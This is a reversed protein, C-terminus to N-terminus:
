VSGAILQDVPAFDDTLITAGDVYDDLAPGTLLEGVERDPDLDAAPVGPERDAALREALAPVDLPSQSAIVVSNGNRGSVIGPGRVLVVHEFVEAITAAEARLFDQRSGDIINKARGCGQFLSWSAPLRRM